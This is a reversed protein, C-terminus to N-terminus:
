SADISRKPRMSALHERIDRLRLYDVGVALRNSESANGSVFEKELQFTYTASCSKSFAYCSALHRLITTHLSSPLLTCPTPLMISL